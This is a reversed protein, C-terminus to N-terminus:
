HYETSHYHSNTLSSQGVKLELQTEDITVGAVEVVDPIVTVTCVATKEGDVTTVTVVTSGPAKATVMGEGSVEAVTPNDTSWTIDKNTANEPLVIATLSAKEEVKLELQTKDITVGAVEVVDPIVIVTCAATKAGDVTTVTVVASGPAKATVVGEGSIEAVTSNDTGWIIDQNTANEPTITATLPAEEEIKLELQAKDITVGAVNVTNSVGVSETGVTFEGSYVSALYEEIGAAIHRAISMQVSTNLLKNYDNENTLFGCEVLTSAYHSTRTVRYLGYKTGRNDTGMASYLRNGVAQALAKSFPYFYYAETGQSLPSVSSNCHISIFLQPNYSEAQAIRDNLEVKTSGKTHILKVSAGYDTRLIDTLKDAIAANIVNESYYKNFGLAGPDTGGHGPDVVIRAQALSPPINHFRLVLNNGEYHARYGMMGNQRRFRLNLTTEDWNAASFLPNKSLKLNQPVSVTYPFTFHIGTPSYTVQYSVPQMMTLVVDTFERTSTVTLGHIKNEEARTSTTAVDQAYVRQGSELMYYRYTNNGEQYIIEDGLTYDLAGKPLPFCSPSSLDNITSSPFTEAQNATVQVPSGSGLITKKNVQVFAGTKTAAIGQYSANFTINGLKQLSSTAAPMIFAGTYKAYASNRNTDDDEEDSRSLPITKNGFSATVQAGDYAWATVIVQMGGELTISGIPSVSDLVQVNRTINYIITKEKHIFTFTNKGAKLEKSLTFFGNNDRKIEKGDLTLLNDPDSAGMFTITPDYTTFVTQQPRSMTLERLMYEPNLEGRYYRVLKNVAGQPNEMLRTCSNFVSGKYGLLKRSEIVQMTIQDPGTWGPNQTCIKNSAQVMYLPINREVMAEAWWVAVTTFPITKDTISGFAEVMVFDVLKEEAFALIDANGDTLSSFAAITASGKKSESKAAWQPGTLLGLPMGPVREKLAEGVTAVVIRSLSQMYANYGMGGGYRLYNQYSDPTAINYYNDLILGDPQYRTAFDGVEARIFDVVQADIYPTVGLKQGDYVWLGNYICYVYLGRSKAATVAYEMPDFNEALQPLRSSAYAVGNKSATQIIVTNMELSSIYDLAKDLEAKIVKESRDTGALFDVEPWLYVGRLEDPCNFVVPMEEQQISSFLKLHGVLNQQSQEPSIFSVEEESRYSCVPTSTQSSLWLAVGVM